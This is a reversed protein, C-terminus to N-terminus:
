TYPTPQPTSPHPPCSPHLPTLVLLNLRPTKIASLALPRFIDDLLATRLLGLRTYAALHELLSAFTWGLVRVVFSRGDVQGM